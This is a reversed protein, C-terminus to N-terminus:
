PLPTLTARRFHIEGGESQLGVAGQRVEIGSAANIQRGNMWVTYNPGEALIEVRNWEGPPNEADQMKRVGRIDGALEHNKVEFSREQGPAMSMGQLTLIDGANGHMLQVEVTRPLARPPGNIRSFLGSNGPKAGPAWRYEVTMRFNTFERDTHIFGIPTGTCVLIGDQVSWTSELTAKPDGSVYTWGTVNRGNFLEMPSGPSERNPTTCATLWLTSLLATFLVIKQKM